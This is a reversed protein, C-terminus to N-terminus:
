VHIETPRVKRNVKPLYTFHMKIGVGEAQLYLAPRFVTPIGGPSKTTHEMDHM